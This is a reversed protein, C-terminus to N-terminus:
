KGGKRIRASNKAMLGLAWTDPLLRATVAIMKNAGGPIHVARNRKLAMFGSEAVDEANMWMFDPLKSVAERTGNVDHFESYTFGPCLASVKVGRGQMEMNLSQSFKILYSKVAAYLTHGKSGPLHGALSAVNIIRGFGIDLMGPLVKHTMETPAHLMLQLFDSHAQWDNELFQGGLGFGANNVLGDIHSTKKSLRALVDDGAGTKSLDAPLIHSTTGFQRKMDKALAVMPEERRACLALDWGARAFEHALAAGIGASAGTILCVPKEKGSNNQRASAKSKAM